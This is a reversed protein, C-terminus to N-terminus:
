FRLSGSFQLSYGQFTSRNAFEDYYRIGVSLKPKPFIASLGVGIANVAYREDSQAMTIAPGTRATTQRQEYGVLGAQLRLSPSVPLTGTLSYDVSLTDGPHIDTGEQTTHWEYIEYASFAFVRDGTLYFTQGSSLTFTWYGSGVNDSGGADFKGTPALVGFLFRLAVAKENWGLILPLFYADAFGSGGSVPGQIDSDLENKAIPLTIGASYRAGLMKTDSVWTFSNLDMLVGNYGTALTEGSRDKSEDRSYYLLQNSYSFGPDATVGSNIASMGLPYVGRSQAHLPSLSILTCAVACVGMRVPTM